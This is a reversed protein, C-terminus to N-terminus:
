RLKLRGELLGLIAGALPIVAFSIVALALRGRASLRPVIGGALEGAIVPVAFLLVGAFLGLVLGSAASWFLISARV